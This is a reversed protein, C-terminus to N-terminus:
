RIPEPFSFVPEIDVPLDGAAKLASQLESPMSSYRAFWQETRNRDGTAEQELLEKALSELAAPIKAYDV